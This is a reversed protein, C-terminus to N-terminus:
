SLRRRHRQLFPDVRRDRLGSRRAARRPHRRLTRPRVAGAAELLYALSEPAQLLHAAVNMADVTTQDFLRLRGILRCWQRGVSAQAIMLSSHIQDIKAELM